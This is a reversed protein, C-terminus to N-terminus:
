KRQLEKPTFQEIEAIVNESKVPSVTWKAEDSSHTEDYIRLEWASGKQEFEYLFSSRSLVIHEEENTEVKWSLGTYEEVASKVDQTTVSM